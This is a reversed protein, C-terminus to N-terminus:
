YFASGHCFRLEDLVIKHKRLEHAYVSISQAVKVLVDQLIATENDKGCVGQDTQCGAGKDTQECQYCFM